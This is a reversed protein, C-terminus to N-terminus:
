GAPLLHEQTLLEVQADDEKRVKNWALVLYVLGGVGM